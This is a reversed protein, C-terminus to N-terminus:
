VEYGLKLALKHYDIKKFSSYFCIIAAFFTYAGCIVFMGTFGLSDQCIKVLFTSLLAAVGFTSFMFGYVSPGRKIDWIRNTVTPIMSSMSGDCMFTLCICVAYAGAHYVAWSM